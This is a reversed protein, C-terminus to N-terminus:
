KKGRLYDGPMSIGRLAAIRAALNQKHTNVLADTPAQNVYTPQPAQKMQRIEEMPPNQYPPINSASLTSNFAKELSDDEDSVVNYSSYSDAGFVDDSKLYDLKNQVAQAFPVFQAYLTKKLEARNM